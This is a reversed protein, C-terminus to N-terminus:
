IQKLYTVKAEAIRLQQLYQTFTKGTRLKSFDAFHKKVSIQREATEDLQDSSIPKGVCQM